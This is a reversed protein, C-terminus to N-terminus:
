ESYFSYPLIGLVNQKIIIFLYAGMLCAIGLYCLTKMPIRCKALRPYKKEDTFKELKILKNLKCTKLLGCIFKIDFYVAPVSTAYVDSALVIIFPIFYRTMRSFIGYQRGLLNVAIAFISGLLAVVMQSRQEDSEFKAKGSFLMYAAFAVLAMVIISFVGIGGEGSMLESNLYRAYIPFIKVVLKVLPKFLVIGLVSAIASAIIKIKDSPILSFAVVVLLLLATMHFFAGAIILLIAPIWKRKKLFYISNTVIALAIAQRIASFTIYYLFATFVMLAVAYNGKCNNRIFLYIGIFVILSTGVLYILAHDGFLRLFKVLLVYGIEYKDAGDIQENLIEPHWFMIVYNDTDYGVSLSRFACVVFMAFLCGALYLKDTSVNWSKNHSLPLALDRQPSVFYGAVACLVFLLMFLLM